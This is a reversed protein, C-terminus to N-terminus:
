VGWATLAPGAESSKGFCFNTPFAFKAPLTAVCGLATSLHNCGFRHMWIPLSSLVLIDM